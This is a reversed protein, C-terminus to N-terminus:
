KAKLNKCSTFNDNNNDNNNEFLPCIIYMDFM